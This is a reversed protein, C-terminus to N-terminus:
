VIKSGHIEKVKTYNILEDRNDRTIGKGPMIIIQNQAYEVLEKIRYKGAIANESLGRTLIRDVGLTKLVDIGKFPDKLEDFAMHFTISLPKACEILKRTVEADIECGKLAGIVIGDVGIEKCRKIDELMIEVEDQNFHFNGGRPRIMVMIPVNVDRRTKLITGYSPTTGGELLNDCLEIRSAGRNVAEIAEQYGGVCAEIIM